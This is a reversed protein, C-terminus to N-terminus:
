KKDTAHKTILQNIEDYLFNLCKLVDLTMSDHMVLASKYKFLEFDSAKVGDEFGRVYAERESIPINVTQQMGGFCAVCNRNKVGNSETCEISHSM